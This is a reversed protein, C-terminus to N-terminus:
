DRLVVSNIERRSAGGIETSIMSTACPRAVKRHRRVCNCDPAQELRRLVRLISASLECSLPRISASLAGASALRTLYLGIIRNICKPYLSIRRSPVTPLLLLPHVM